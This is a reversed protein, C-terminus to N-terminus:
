PLSGCLQPNFYLGPGLYSAPCRQCGQDHVLYGAGGWGPLENSVPYEKCKKPDMSKAQAQLARLKTNILDYQSNRGLLTEKEFNGGTLTVYGTQELGLVPAPDNYGVANAIAAGGNFNEVFLSCQDAM